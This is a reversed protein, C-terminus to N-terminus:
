RDTREHGPEKASSRRQASAAILQAWLALAEKRCREPIQKWIAAFQEGGLDLLRQRVM